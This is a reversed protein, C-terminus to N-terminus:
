RRSDVKNYAAQLLVYNYSSVKARRAVENAFTINKNIKRVKNSLILWLHLFDYLM